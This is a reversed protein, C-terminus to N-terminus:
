PVRRQSGLLPFFGSNGICREMLQFPFASTEWQWFTEWIKWKREQRVPPFFLAAELFAGLPAETKKLRSFPDQYKGRRLHQKLELPILAAGTAADCGAWSGWVVQNQLWSLRM